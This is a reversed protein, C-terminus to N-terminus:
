VCALVLIRLDEHTKYAFLCQTQTYGFFGVGDPDGTGTLFDVETSSEVCIDDDLVSSTSEFCPTGSIVLGVAVGVM